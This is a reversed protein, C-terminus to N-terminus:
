IDTGTWPRMNAAEWMGVYPRQSIQFGEIDGLVYRDNELREIIKYPGKFQPILKKSVGPTSDFNRIM